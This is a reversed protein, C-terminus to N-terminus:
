ALPRMSHPEMSHHWDACEYCFPMRNAIAISEVYEAHARLYTPQWSLFADLPSAIAGSNWDCNLCVPVKEPDTPHTPDPRGSLTPYVAHRGCAPCPQGEM